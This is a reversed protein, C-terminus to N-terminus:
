SVANVETLEGMSAMDVSSTGLDNPFGKALELSMGLEGTWFKAAIDAIALLELVQGSGLQVVVDAFFAGLHLYHALNAVFLIGSSLESRVLADLLEIDVLKVGMAVVHDIVQGVFQDEVSSLLLSKPEARLILAHLLM